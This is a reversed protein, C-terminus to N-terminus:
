TGSVSLSRLYVVIAGRDEPTLRSTNDDIVPSMAGGTFDGDPLMGIELFFEIESDSWRGIGADPNQTIDPVKKGRPGSPNGELERDRLLRGFANRPTHCEGCHGLHRVLYAGRNWGEHKSPDPSFRAATFNVVKWAWAALRSSLYWALEHERNRRRVPELSFLYQKIALADDRSMGTYSTYPFAPYYSSGDPAVGHWLADVFHDDSWGGIGTEVDPTINPSYFTGFPTELAHGGALPVADDDGATHCTKCGAAHLLYEGRALASDAADVLAPVVTLALLALAKTPGSHM